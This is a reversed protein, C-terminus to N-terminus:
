RLRRQAETSFDDVAKPLSTKILGKLIFSPVSVSFELDLQYLVSTSSPGTSVLEWLGDNLQFFDGDKLVWSVKAKQDSWESKVSIVYEISKKMLEITMAVDFANNEKKLIKCSKVGGAFQPYKEFDLICEYLAKMPVNVLQKHQAVAM